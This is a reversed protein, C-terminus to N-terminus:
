ASESPKQPMIAARGPLCLGAPLTQPTLMLTPLGRHPRAARQPEVGEGQGHAVRRAVAAGVPLDALDFEVALADHHPARHAADPHLDAHRDRLKAADAHPHQRRLAVCGAATATMSSCRSLPSDTGSNM